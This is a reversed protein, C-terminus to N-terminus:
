KGNRIREKQKKIEELYRISFGRIERKKTNKPIKIEVVGFRTKIKSKGERIPFYEEILNRPM